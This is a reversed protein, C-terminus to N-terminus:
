KSSGAAVTAKECYGAVARNDAEKSNAEFKAVFESESLKAGLKTRYTAGDVWKEAFSEGGATHAYPAFKGGGLSLGDALSEIKGCRKDVNTKPIVEEQYQDAVELSHSARKAECALLRMPVDASLGGIWPGAYRVVDPDFKQARALAEEYKKTTETMEAARRESSYADSTGAASDCFRLAKDM